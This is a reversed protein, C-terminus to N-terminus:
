DAEEPELEAIVEERDEEKPVAAKIVEIIDDLHLWGLAEIALQKTEDGTLEGFDIKM